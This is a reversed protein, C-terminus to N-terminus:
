AKQSLISSMPFFLIFLFFLKVQFLLLLLRQELCSFITPLLNITSFCHLLREFPIHHFSVTKVDTIHILLIAIVGVSPGAFFFFGFGHACGTSVVRSIWHDELITQGVFLKSSKMINRCFCNNGSYIYM